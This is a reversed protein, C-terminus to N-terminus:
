YFIKPSAAEDPPHIVLLRVNRPVDGSEDDSFM